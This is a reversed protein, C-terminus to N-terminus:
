FELKEKLCEVAGRDPTCHLMYVPVRGAVQMLVDAAREFFGPVAGSVTTESLLWKFAERGTLRECRNEKAQRIVVVAGLPSTVNKYIASSGAIPMGYALAGKEGAAIATRDGNIVEANEYKEWLSAQTSKGTGSPASFLVAKEEVKIHSSHLIVRGHEILTWELGVANFLNWTEAFYFAKEPRCVCDFNEKDRRIIRACLETDYPIYFDRVVRGGINYIKMLPNEFVPTDTIKEPQGYIFNYTIDPRGGDTKYQAFSECPSYDFPTRVLINVDGIRYMGEM